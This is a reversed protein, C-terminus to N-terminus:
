PGHSARRARWSAAILGLGVLVSIIALPLGIRELWDRRLATQTAGVLRAARPNAEPYTVAVRGGEVLEVVSGIDAPYAAQVPEARGAPTFSLRALEYPQSNAITRRESSLYSLTVREVQLVQATATRWPGGPGPGLPSERYSEVVLAAWIIAPPLLALRQFPPRVVLGILVIAGAAIAISRVTQWPMLSLTSQEALRSISPFEPVYRVRVISGIRLHDYIAPEVLLVREREEDLGLPLYRATVSLRHEWEGNQKLIVGEERAVVEGPVVIGVADLYLSVGFLMGCLWGVVLLGPLLGDARGLLRNLQWGLWNLLALILPTALFLGLSLLFIWAFEDALSM